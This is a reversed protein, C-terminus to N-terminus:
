EGEEDPSDFNVSEYEDTPFQNEIVDRKFIENLVLMEASEGNWYTRISGDKRQYMITVSKLNDTDHEKILEAINKRFGTKDFIDLHEIKGM